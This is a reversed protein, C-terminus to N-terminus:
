FLLSDIFASTLMSCPFLNMTCDATTKESCTIAKHPSSKHLLKMPLVFVSLLSVALRHTRLSFLRQPQRGALLLVCGLWQRQERHCVRHHAGVTVCLNLKVREAAGTSAGNGCLQQPWNQSFSQVYDCLADSRRTTGPCDAALLVKHSVLNDM